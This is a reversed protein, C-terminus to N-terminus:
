LPCSELQYLAAKGCFAPRIMAAPMRFSTVKSDTSPVILSRISSAYRKIPPLAFRIGFLTMGAIVFPNFQPRSRLLTGLFDDREHQQIKQRIRAELNQLDVLNNVGMESVM